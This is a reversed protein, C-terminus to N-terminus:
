HEIKEIIENFITKPTQKADIQYWNKKLFIKWYRQTKQQHQIFDNIQPNEVLGCEYRSFKQKRKAAVEIELNLQFVMNPVRFSKILNLALEKDAGLALETTIYKYYYANLIVLDADSQMAKDSSYKLAHILFLMRSDPTLTCLFNDIDQKSRFHLGSDPMRLLDWIEAVYVTPFYENLAKVLTSKGSGDIGTICIIQKKKM